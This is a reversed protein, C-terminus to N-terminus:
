PVAPPEMPTAGPQQYASTLGTWQRWALTWISSMYATVAGGFIWLLPWLICCLAIMITPLFALVAIAIGLGVQIVLLVLAQTLHDAVIRWARRYADFVGMGEMMCARMALGAFVSLLISLPIILCLLCVFAIAAGSGFIRMVSETSVAAVGLAAIAAMAGVALLILMPIAPLLNIGLLPWKRAWGASWAQGFGTTRQEEVDNVGAILGGQAIVGVFWAILVILFVFLGIGVLIAIPLADVEPIDAPQFQFGNGADGNGGGNGGGGTNWSTGNGGGNALSALIGLVILFPRERLITFARGLIKGYDM